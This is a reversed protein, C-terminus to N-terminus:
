RLVVSVLFAQDASNHCRGATEDPPIPALTAFSGEKNLVCEVISDKWM